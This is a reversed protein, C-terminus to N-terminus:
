LISGRQQKKVPSNSFILSAWFLLEILPLEIVVLTPPSVIPQSAVSGGRKEGQGM